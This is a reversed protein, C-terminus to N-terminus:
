VVSKRDKLYREKDFLHYQRTSNEKVKSTHVGLQRLPTKGDWLQVFLRMVAEHIEETVNTESLLQMQHSTHFFEWTVFSVSVCSIYVQDMRLRTCVTECLSLYVLAAQDYTIVDYPVTISNGYGKNRAQHPNVIGRDIGNAYAWIVEGYSKFHHKLIIPDAKALEGITTIGMKMLKSHTARGVGFLEGVPLPWMKSEMENPFLTHVYNPKKLESAMKALLKNTSVGVNVTFGLQEYIKQKLIHAMVVPSGYLKGTGTMNLWCEDISYQELDPSFEKLLRMLAMSCKVYLSYSPPVIVLDPCKQRATLLAEGTHINYKKAPISKALVIGHRAKEDGGVVAPVERLDIEEGNKLRDVASWSLFASNVDIHYIIKEEKRDM